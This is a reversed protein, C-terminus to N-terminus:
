VSRIDEAVVALNNDFQHGGTEIEQFKAGILQQNYHHFHSLPVEDDDTCHYLFIPVDFPLKDAFGPKLKFGAKWAEDGSWFPAALLFVGAIRRNVSSESLYKLLMSAGFSHAVVVLGDNAQAIKEGIQEPWGFDSAAEDIDIEPGDVQYGDGLRAQLSAALPKDGEYGGEGAGHIFLLQRTM